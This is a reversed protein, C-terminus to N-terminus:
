FIKLINQNEILKATGVTTTLGIADSYDGLGM